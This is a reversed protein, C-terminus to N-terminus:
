RTYPRIARDPDPRGSSRYAEILRGVDFPVRRFELALRAGDASLLAYEAWPDARFEGGAPQGPRFALGVSGPNLHFTAGLHRVFQVHTHGGAYVRDDRPDLRARVESEPTDPAIIEDYSRPTGHYAVLTRGEGLPLELSPAFGRMWARDEASLRALSWARVQELNALLAADLKPPGSAPWGDLLFADSNGLVVPVGLARLRAAVEAPNPGGQLEDGLCVIRDSPTGALDDLVAELAVANGHIDSLIAVRM